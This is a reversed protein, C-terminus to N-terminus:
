NSKEVLLSIFYTVSMCMVYRYERLRIFGPPYTAGSAYRSYDAVEFTLGSSPLLYDVTM